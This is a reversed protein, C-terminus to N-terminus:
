YANKNVFGKFVTMVLIKIDLGVTWNEIYYLDYEIRKRISTDGRYGNVQAWGTMGPRVQHKIMYRPIEEKFKEVFLPREPRPGILSMDGKLVNFLQPLEDMSTSRMIKGIPTVREDGKTTWKDKEEEDTQVTMSRFKYMKFPRNHLGVREQRFIIPGPSTLKIGVVCFLMAPSFLVICLLSGVIDMARKIFKNPGEMLPVHRINIVPLGMLDETYTSTSIVTSFDPVFKTHVGSKETAAVIDRLKAYETLQLTIMIEDLQNAALIGELENLRGIVDVGRYKEGIEHSDDLIGHIKYGWHPNQKVRDIFSEASSSYGVLLVHKQNFGNKRMRYLVIRIVCREIIILCVNYIAFYFIMYGSYFYRDKILYLGTVFILIGILNAGLIRVLEKRRGMVRKPTYLGFIAYLLLMGPVLVVLPMAYYRFAQESLPDYQFDKAGIIIFRLIYAMVYALVVMLGDLVVHMKNLFSQRNKIM